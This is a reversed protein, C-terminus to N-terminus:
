VVVVVVVVPAGIVGVLIPKYEYMLRKLCSSLLTNLETQCEKQAISSKTSHRFVLPEQEYSNMGVGLGLICTLAFYM